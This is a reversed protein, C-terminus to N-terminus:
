SLNLFRSSPWSQSCVDSTSCDSTTKASSITQVTYPEGMSSQGALFEGSTDVVLRFRNSSTAQSQRNVIVPSSFYAPSSENDQCSWAQFRTALYDTSGANPSLCNDLSSSRCTLPSTSCFGSTSISRDDCDVGAFGVDIRIGGLPSGIIGSRSDLPDFKHLLRNSDDSDDNDSFSSAEGAFRGSRSYDGFRSTLSTRCVRGDGAPHRKRRGPPPWISVEDSSSSSAGSSFM